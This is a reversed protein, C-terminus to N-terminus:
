SSSAPALPRPSGLCCSTSSAASGSSARASPSATSRRPASTPSSPAAAELQPSSALLSVRPPLFSPNWLPDATATSRPRRAATPRRRSPDPEESTAAAVESARLHRSVTWCADSPLVYSSTNSQNPDFIHHGAQKRLGMQLHVRPTFFVRYQRPFIGPRRFRRPAISQRRAPRRAPYFFSRQAAIKHKLRVLIRRKRHMKGWPEHHSIHRDQMRAWVEGKRM